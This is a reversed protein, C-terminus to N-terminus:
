QSAKKLEALSFDLLKVLDENVGDGTMNIVQPTNEILIKGDPSILVFRPIFDVNYDLPFSSSAGAFLHAGALNKEKVMKKWKEKDRETDISISLFQINENKYKEELEKIYPGQAICPGCWTAWIDMLILKGKYSSLSKLDGNIDELKFAPADKITISDNTISDIQNSNEEVSLAENTSDDKVSEKCSFLLFGFILGLFIKKM